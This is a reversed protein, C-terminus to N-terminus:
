KPGTESQNSLETINLIGSKKAMHGLKETETKIEQPNISYHMNKLVLKATRKIQLHSIGQM